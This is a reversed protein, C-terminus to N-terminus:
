IGAVFHVCIPVGLREAEEYIPFFHPNDLPLDRHQPPFLGGVLGLETVARRLERVALGADQVPLLAVGKLRDPYAGCYEALWDNYARAIAAALGADEVIAPVGVFSSCFVVSLDIGMFDMDPMRAHPELE